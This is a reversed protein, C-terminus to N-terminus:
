TCVARRLADITMKNASDARASFERHYIGPNAAAMDSSLRKIELEIEVFNKM